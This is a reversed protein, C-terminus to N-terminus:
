RAVMPQRCRTRRSLSTMTRRCAARSMQWQEALSSARTFWRRGHRGNCILLAPSHESEVLCIATATLSTNFIDALINVANFTL